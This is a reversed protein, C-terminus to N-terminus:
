RARSPHPKIIDTYRSRSQHARVCRGETAEQAPLLHAPVEHPGTCALLLRAVVTLDLGAGHALLTEWQEPTLAPRAAASAREIGPLLWPKGAPQLGVLGLLVAAHPAFGARAWAYALGLACEELIVTNSSTHSIEIAERWPDAPAGRRPADRLTEVNVSVTYTHPGRMWGIWM